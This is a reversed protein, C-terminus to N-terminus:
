PNLKYINSHRRMVDHHICELVGLVIYVRSNPCDDGVEPSHNYSHLTTSSKRVRDTGLVQGPDLIYGQGPPAHSTHWWALCAILGESMGYM